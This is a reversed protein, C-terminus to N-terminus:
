SKKRSPQPLINQDPLVTGCCAQLTIQMKRIKMPVSTRVLFSTRTDNTRTDRNHLWEKTAFWRMEHIEAACNPTDALKLSRSKRSYPQKVYERFVSRKWEIRRSNV